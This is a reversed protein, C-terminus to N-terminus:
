LSSTWKLVDSESVEADRMWVLHAFVGCDRTEECYLRIQGCLKYDPPYGWELRYDNLEVSKTKGAQLDGTSVNATIVHQLGTIGVTVAEEVYIFYELTIDHLDHEGINTLYVTVTASYETEGTLGWSARRQREIWTSYDLEATVEVEYRLPEPKPPPPEPRFDASHSSPDSVEQYLPTNTSGLFLLSLALVIAASVALSRKSMQM